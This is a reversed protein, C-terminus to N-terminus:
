FMFIYPENFFLFKSSGGSIMAFCITIGTIVGAIINAVLSWAKFCNGPNNIMLKIVTDIGFYSLVFAFLWFNIDDYMFMPAFVYGFTFAFVFTSFGYKFGYEDSCDPAGASSGMSVAGTAKYFGLRCICTVILFALYILGNANQYIFSLSVFISAIVSPSNDILAIKMLNGINNPDM